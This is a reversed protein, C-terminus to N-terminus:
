FDADDPLPVDEYAEHRLVTELTELAQRAIAQARAHAYMAAERRDAGEAQAKRMVRDVEGEIVGGETHLLERASYPNNSMAEHAKDAWGDEAVDQGADARDKAKKSAKHYAAMISQASAAFPSVELVEEVAPRDTGWKVLASLVPATAYAELGVQRLWHRRVVASRPTLARMDDIDKGVQEWLDRSRAALVKLEEIRQRADNTLQGLEAYDPREQQPQVAGAADQAQPPSSPNPSM